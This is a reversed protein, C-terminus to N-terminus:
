APVSLTAKLDPLKPPTVTFAKPLSAKGYPGEIELDYTGAALTGPVYAGLTEQSSWQVNSLATTGLKATFTDHLRTPGNELDVEPRVYFQSGQIVLSVPTGQEATAPIVASLVPAPLPTSSKCSGALVGLLSLAALRESRTM